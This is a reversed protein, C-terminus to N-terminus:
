LNQACFLCIYNGCCDSILIAIYSTLYLNLTKSNFYRMCIPCIYKYEEKENKLKPTLDM